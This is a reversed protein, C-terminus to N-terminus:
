LLLCKDMSSGQVEAEQLAELALENLVKGPGYWKRTKPDQM